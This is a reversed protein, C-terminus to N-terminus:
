TIFESAPSIACLDLIDYDELASSSLAGTDVNPLECSDTVGAEPTQHQRRAEMPMASMKVHMYMSVPVYVYNFNFSINLFIKFSIFEDFM